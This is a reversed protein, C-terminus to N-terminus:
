IQAVKEKNSYFEKLSQIVSPVGKILLPKVFQKLLTAFNDGEVWKM